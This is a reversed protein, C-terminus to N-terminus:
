LLIMYHLCPTYATTHNIAQRMSTYYTAPPSLGTKGVYHVMKPDIRLDYPEKYYIKILGQKGKENNDPGWELTSNFGVM